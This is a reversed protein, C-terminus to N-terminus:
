AFSGFIVQDLLGSKEAIVKSLRDSFNYYIIIM